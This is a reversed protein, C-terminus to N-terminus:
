CGTHFRRHPRRGRVCAPRRLPRDFLEGRRRRVGRWDAAGGHDAHEPQRDRVAGRRRVAALRGPSVALHRRRNRRLHDRLSDRLGVSRLRRRVRDPAQRFPPPLRHSAMESRPRAGPHPRGESRRHRRHRRLDAGPRRHHRDGRAARAAGVRADDDGPAFDADRRRRPERRARAAPGREAAAARAGLSGLEFAIMGGFGRM